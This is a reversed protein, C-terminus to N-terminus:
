PPVVQDWIRIEDFIGGAVAKDATTWAGLTIRETTAMPFAVPGTSTNAYTHEADNFYLHVNQVGAGVTFDWTIRITEWTGPFFWFNNSDVETLGVQVGGLYTLIQTANGQNQAGKRLLIGSGATGGLAFLRHEKGDLTMFVPNFSLEVTGTLFAANGYSATEMRWQAYENQEDVVIGQDVTGALSKTM